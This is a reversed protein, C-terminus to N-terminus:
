FNAAVLLNGHEAALHRCNRNKTGATGGQAFVKGFNLGAFRNRGDCANFGDPYVTRVCANSLGIALSGPAVNGYRDDHWMRSLNNGFKSLNSM